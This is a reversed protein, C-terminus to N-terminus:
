RASLHQPKDTKTAKKKKNAFTAPEASGGGGGTKPKASVKPSTAKHNKILADLSMGLGGPLQAGSM